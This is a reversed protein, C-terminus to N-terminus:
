AAPLRRAVRWETRTTNSPKLLWRRAAVMHRKQTVYADVALELADGDIRVLTATAGSGDAFEVMAPYPKGSRPADHGLTVISGPYLHSRTARLLLATSM